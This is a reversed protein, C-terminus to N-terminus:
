SRRICGPFSCLMEFVLNAALLATNGSNDYPPSVEVLDCGVLNLGYCGRIIEIGQISSLGGPEPTGTGPAVSPDLGDIDFTLYVPTDAGIQERVEAMLPTLSKHWCEEAPVVRGGQERTWEFDDASYGTTRLGIQVMKNGDVLGEEVARRFITGHAIKEGFMNDNIDAHADVHVLALKKGHKKHLARLIPLSITHDGGLTVPKANHSLVDSFFDEIIDISKLLNFTNLPVDGVDAIQFSDFPAAQTAMGYPRVMSSEARIQRPGFRTGNRNSTGIDLGVGIIAMDLGAATKESPLRFMTGPGHFRPMENGGLPQNFKKDSM